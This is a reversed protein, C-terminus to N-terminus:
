KEKLHVDVATKVINRNGIKSLVFLVASLWIAGIATYILPYVAANAIWENILTRANVLIIFGGVLVGMLQPHFKQVLWAAIPAAIIGGAMLSFVWLWNVDEWGLSILFGATASVAIAFESTDVTGVVKRPSLGKRSLLIPTTVPGWGGGGTADAFGAIVGLPISQKRNLPVHKKELAPKYQFLFRILVYGGLLLLFLSIYPKVVDGPLQSLFAAGLFAGISGPIVLQYVTQKDVNGFKMHSVGSAATTVVEALHVSASAVAPTIGFALLLSTSTVGYAMGLSGDILQSLLGIFAFVILKKM